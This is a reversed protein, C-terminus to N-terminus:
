LESVRNSNSALRRYSLFFVGNIALAAFAAGYVGFAPVLAMNLIVGVLAAGIGVPVIIGVRGSKLILNSYMGSAAALIGSCFLLPLVRLARAYDPPVLGMALLIMLGATIVASVVFLAAAMPALLRTTLSLPAVSDQQRLINPLWVNQFSSFVFPVVSALTMALAYVSLDELPRFRQLFYRDSLNAILGIAGSVMIPVGIGLARSSVGAVFRPVFDRRCLFVCLAVIAIEAGYGFKLRLAASNGDDIAIALISAGNMMVVRAINFVRAFGLRDRLYLYSLFHLSLVSSIVGAIMPGRFEEFSIEPGMALRALRFDIGLGCIVVVAVSLLGALLVSLTFLVAARDKEPYEFFLKAQAAYLGFGLVLAVAAVLANLYAYVGFEDQTMLSLYVPLLLIGSVRVLTDVGLVALYRRVLSGALTEHTAEMVLPSQPASLASRSRDRVAFRGSSGSLGSVSM